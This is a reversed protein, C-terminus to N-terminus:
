LNAEIVKVSSFVGGRNDIGYKSVLKGAEVGKVVRSRISRPVAPAPLVRLKGSSVIARKLAPLCSEGTFDVGSLLAQYDYGGQKAVEMISAANGSGTVSSYVEHGSDMNGLDLQFGGNEKMKFKFIEANSVLAHVNVKPEKAISSGLRQWDYPGREEWIDEGTWGQLATRAEDQSPYHWAGDEYPVGLDEDGYDPDYPTELRGDEYLRVAGDPTEEVSEGVVTEGFSSDNPDAKYMDWEDVTM